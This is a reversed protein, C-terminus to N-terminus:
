SRRTPRVLRMQPPEVLCKKKGKKVEREIVNKIEKPEMDGGRKKM